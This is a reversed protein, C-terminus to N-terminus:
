EPFVEDNLILHQKSELKRYDRSTFYRKLSEIHSMRHLDSGIFDILNNALLWEATLKCNKDYHGALSLLNVQFLIGVSHLHEYIEDHFQYYPYREPHALVPILNYDNRLSYVFGELDYPPQSWGCEVLLYKGGPLPRVSGRDLYDKLLEDIRYEASYNFQMPIGAATVADTLRLYSESIIEPTNPFLEDTVHPTVIMRTFGLESMGRVLNVSQERNPSGDDIGPCVHSHIDTHWFLEPLKSSHFFNFLDRFYFFLPHRHLQLLRRSM